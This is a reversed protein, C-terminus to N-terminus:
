TNELFPFLKHMDPGKESGTLYMRLPMYLSRGERGTEERVKDTWDKWSRENRPREPLMSIALKVFDKDESLILPTAGEKCLKWLSKLESRKEVNDRAMDWFAEQKEFPIGIESMFTSLNTKKLKSLAVRSISYLDDMNFKTPSTNFLKLDFNKAFDQLDNQVEIKNGSGLNALVSCVAGPEVGNERLEKISLSNARKSFNDGSSNVILSHHAFDPNYGILTKFIEIQVATNTLHDVGRVVETIKYDIDDVVSALTYLFQGNAKIIIPDSVSKTQVEVDGAIKDRWAIKKGSLYFRYYSSVNTRLKAKDSESLKLSQRDYVPPQGRNLQKKRKLDLEISTEFCEYVNENKILSNLTDEYKELRKSQQEIRDWYIGLWELDYKIQDIYHQTSREQDTDDLRLIFDGGNKKALLFNFIATRVNGLHLYGTPSPAFRLINKKM